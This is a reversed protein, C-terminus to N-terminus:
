YVFPEKSASTCRLSAIPLPKRFLPEEGEDNIFVVVPHGSRICILGDKYQIPTGDRQGTFDGLCWLNLDVPLEKALGGEKPIFYVKDPIRHIGSNFGSRFTLYFKDAYVYLRNFSLNSMENQWIIPIEQLGSRFLM